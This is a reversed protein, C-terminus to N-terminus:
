RLTDVEIATMLIMAVVIVVITTVIKLITKNSM